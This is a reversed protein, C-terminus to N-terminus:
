EEQNTKGMTTEGHEFAAVITDLLPRVSKATQDDLPLMKVLKLARRIEALASERGLSFGGRFAAHESEFWM